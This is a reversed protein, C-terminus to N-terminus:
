MERSFILTCITSAAPLGQARIFPRSALVYRHKLNSSSVSPYGSHRVPFPLLGYRSINRSGDDLYQVANCYLVQAVSYNEETGGCGIRATKRTGPLPHHEPDAPVASCADRCHRIKRGEGKTRDCAHNAPRNECGVFCDVEFCSAHLVMVHGMSYQVHQVTPFAFRPRIILRYDKVGLAFGSRSIELAVDRNGLGPSAIGFRCVSYSAAM